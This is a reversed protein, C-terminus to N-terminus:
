HMSFSTYEFNNLNRLVTQENINPFSNGEKERNLIWADMYKVKGSLFTANAQLLQAPQTPPTPLKDSTLLRTHLVSKPM